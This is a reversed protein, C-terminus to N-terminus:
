NALLLQLFADSRTLLAMHGATHRSYRGEQDHIHYSFDLVFNGAQEVGGIRIHWGEDIGNANRIALAESVERQRSARWVQAVTRIQAWRNGDALWNRKKKSASPFRHVCILFGTSGRSDTWVFKRK